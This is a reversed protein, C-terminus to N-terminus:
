GSWGGKRWQRRLRSWAAVRQGKTHRCRGSKDRGALAVKYAIRLKM